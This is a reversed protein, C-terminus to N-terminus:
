AEGGKGYDAFSLANATRRHEENYKKELADLFRSTEPLMGMMGAPREPNKDAFAGIRVPHAKIEDMKGRRVSVTEMNLPDYAIEVDLRVLAASAEYKVGMLDFCGSKDITRKEHHTFVESVTGVDLFKQRRTDRRWEKEPSIGDAPVEVGMSEYYERIGSHEKKQYDQEM